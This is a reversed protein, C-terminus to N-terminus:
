GGLFNKVSDIAMGVIVMLAMVGVHVWGKAFRRGAFSAVADALLELSAAILVLGIFIRRGLAVVNTTM